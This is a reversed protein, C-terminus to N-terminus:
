RGTRRCRTAPRRQLRAAGVRDDDLVIEGRREARMGSEARPQCAAFVDTRQWLQWAIETKSASCIPRRQSNQPDVASTGYSCTLSATGDRTAAAASSRRTAPARDSERTTRGGTARASCGEARLREGVRDLADVKRVPREVRLGVRAPGGLGARVVVDALAVLLTRCTLHVGADPSSDCTKSSSSTHADTPTSAPAAAACRATESRCARATRGRSGRPSSPRASDSRDRRPPRAIAAASPRRAARLQAALLHGAVGVAIEDDVRREAVLRELVDERRDPQQRVDVARLGVLHDDVAHGARDGARPRPAPDLDRQEHERRQDQEEEVRRRLRGSKEAVPSVATM